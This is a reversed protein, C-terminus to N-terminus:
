VPDIRGISVRDQAGAEVANALQLILVIRNGGTETFMASGSM